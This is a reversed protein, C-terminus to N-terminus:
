RHLQAHAHPHAWIPQLGIIHPPAPRCGATHCLGLIRLQLPHQGGIRAQALVEGGQLVDAHHVGRRSSGSNQRASTTTHLLKANM